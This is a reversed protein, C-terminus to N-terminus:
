IEKFGWYDFGHAVVELMVGNMKVKQGAKLLFRSHKARAHSTLSAGCNNIWYVKHGNAIARATREETKDAEGNEECYYAICGPKVEPYLNGHRTSKMEVCFRFGGDKLMNADITMVDLELDVVEFAPFDAVTKM